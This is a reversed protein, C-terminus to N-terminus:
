EKGHTTTPDVWKLLSSVIQCLLRDREELCLLAEKVDGLCKIRTAVDIIWM